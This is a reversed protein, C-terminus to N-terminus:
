VPGLSELWDALQPALPRDALVLLERGDGRVALCLRLDAAPIRDAGREPWEILLLEGPGPLEALGLADAEDPSQLRYLDVHFLRGSDLEYPEILTYTPSPVRGVHGLGALIARAMSTKGAGLEGELWLTLGGDNGTAALARGLALGVRETREPSSLTLERREPM